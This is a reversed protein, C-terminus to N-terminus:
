ANTVYLPPGIEIESRLTLEMFKDKSIRIAKKQGEIFKYYKWTRADDETLVQIKIIKEM